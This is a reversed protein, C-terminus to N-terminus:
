SQLFLDLSLRLDDATAVNPELDCKARSRYAFHNWIPWEYVMHVAFSPTGFHAAYKCAELM